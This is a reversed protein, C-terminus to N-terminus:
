KDKKIRREGCVCFQYDFEHGQAKGRYAILPCSDELHVVHGDSYYGDEQNHKRCDKCYIIEPEVSAFAIFRDLIRQYEEAEEWRRQNCLKEKQANLHIRITEFDDDTLRELEASPLNLITQRDIDNMNQVFIRHGIWEGVDLDESEQFQKETKDEYEYLAKWLADIAAQRSIMDGDCEKAFRDIVEQVEENEDMYGMHRLKMALADANLLRM